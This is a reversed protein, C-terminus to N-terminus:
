RYESRMQLAALKGELETIRASSVRQEEARKLKLEAHWRELDKHNRMEKVEKYFDHMSDCCKAFVIVTGIVTVIIGVWAFVTMM